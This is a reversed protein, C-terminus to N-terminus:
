PFKESWFQQLDAIAKIAQVNVPADPDGSITVAPEISTAPAQAGGGDGSGACGAVMLAAVLTVAWSGQMRPLTAVAPQFWM